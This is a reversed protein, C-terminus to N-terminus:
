GGRLKDLVSKLSSMDESELAQTAVRIFMDLSDMTSCVAHRMAGLARQRKGKEVDKHDAPLENNRIPANVM